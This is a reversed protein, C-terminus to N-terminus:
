ELLLLNLQNRVKESNWDVAGTEDVVIDGKKNIIVTRPISRTNLEKPSENLPQFVEFNFGRKTKFKNVTEFDDSTVFLFVVKDKYDGYLEQLNPMEAICPPCWTAWFNIFVVKDQMDMLNISTDNDSILQWNSYTISTRDKEDIVSSQNIYSLGKHIFVQIPTRTQPIIFLTIVLIFLINKVNKRSVIIKNKTITSAILFGKLFKM